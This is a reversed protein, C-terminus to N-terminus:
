NTRIVEGPKLGELVAAQIGNDIGLKVERRQFGNPSKVYVYTNDRDAEVAALPILTADKEAHLLIDASASLDPIMRSDVDSVEVSLPITRIYFNERGGTVALAGLSYVKAHYTSGPFADLAVVADQGIRIQSSESQNVAGAVRMRHPNIIKMLPQGPRVTDGVAVTVQEGGPRFYTSLVVMGDMPAHMVYKVIDSQHREVHLEEMKQNILVNRLSAAQSQLSLPVDTQMEKYAAEAEDLSLKLLERDIDTRIEAAKIDLRAKDVNAKAQRLTQQLNTMQLENNVKMKKVNNQVDRLGDITDDLHDKASQPDIEAIVDGKKVMAGSSALKLLVMAGSEPGRQRPVVINAYDSATTQGTVRLRVELDGKRVTFTRTAASAAARQAAQQRATYWSYGIGAVAAILVAALLLKLLSRRRDPPAATPAPGPQPERLPNTIAPM